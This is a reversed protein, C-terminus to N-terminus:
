EQPAHFSKSPIPKKVINRDYFPPMSIVPVVYVKNNIAPLQRSLSNPEQPCASIHRVPRHEFPM